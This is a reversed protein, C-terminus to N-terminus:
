IQAFRGGGQVQKWAYIIAFGVEAEAKAEAQGACANEEASGDKLGLDNVSGSVVVVDPEEHFFGM